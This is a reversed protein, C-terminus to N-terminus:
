PQLPTKRTFFLANDPKEFDRYRTATEIVVYIRKQHMRHAVLGAIFRLASATRGGKGICIGVDLPNVFVKILTYNGIEDEQVTSELTVEKPHNVIGKLVDLILQEVYEM